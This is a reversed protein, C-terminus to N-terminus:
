FVVQHFAYMSLASSVAQASPRLVIRCSLNQAQHLSAKGRHGTQLAARLRAAPLISTLGDGHPLLKIIQDVSIKIVNGHCIQRVAIQVCLIKLELCLFLWVM